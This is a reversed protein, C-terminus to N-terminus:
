DRYSPDRRDLLRRLARWDRGQIYDNSKAFQAASHECVSAPPYVLRGGHATADLQIQCSLELFYMEEFAERVTAGCTLLGHNRLILAKHPGLDRVLRKQEDTDLAIGEFAHYGVRGHFRMAHQSIMLLGEERASIAVGARTHTHFVCDLDPRAQHIASHIVFGAPNAELRGDDVPRGELDVKILNSASVEEYMLGFANILFHDHRGPVRLSIHNYILDTMRFQVCLRYCAALDERAAWEELSVQQRLTARRDALVRQLTEDDMHKLTPVDAM